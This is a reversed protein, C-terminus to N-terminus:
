SEQQRYPTYLYREFYDEYDEPIELYADSTRDRVISWDCAVPLKAAANEALRASKFRFQVKM